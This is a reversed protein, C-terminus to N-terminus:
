EEMIKKIRLKDCEEKNEMHSKMLVQSFYGGCNICPKQSAFNVIMETIKTTEEEAKQLLDSINDKILEFGFDFNKYVYKDGVREVSFYENKWLSKSKQSM